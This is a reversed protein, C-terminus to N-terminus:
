GHIHLLDIVKRVGCIPWELCVTLFKWTIDSSEYSAVTHETKKVTFECFFDIFDCVFGMFM